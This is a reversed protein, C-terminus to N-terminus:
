KDDSEGDECGAEHGSLLQVEFVRMSVSERLKLDERASQQDDLSELGRAEESVLVGALHPHGAHSKRLDDGPYEIDDRYDEQHRDHLLHVQNM